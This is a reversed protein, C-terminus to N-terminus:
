TDRLEKQLNLEVGFGRLGGCASSKWGLVTVMTVWARARRGRGVGVRAM